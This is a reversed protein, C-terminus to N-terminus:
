PDPLSGEKLKFKYLMGPLADSVNASFYGQKEEEMEILKSAAASFEADESLQVDVRKCKPAGVRFHVGGTPLLEAGVPYRRAYGSSVPKRLSDENRAEALPRPARTSTKMETSNAM